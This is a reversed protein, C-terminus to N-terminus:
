ILGNFSANCFSQRKKLLIIFELKDPHKASHIFGNGVICNGIDDYPVVQTDNRLKVYNKEAPALGQGVNTKAIKTNISYILSNSLNSNLM